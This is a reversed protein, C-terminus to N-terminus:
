DLLNTGNMNEMEIRYYGSKNKLAARNMGQKQRDLRKDKDNWQTTAITGQVSIGKIARYHRSMRTVYALGALMFSEDKNKLWKIRGEYKYARWLAAVADDIQAVTVGIISINRAVSAYTHKTGAQAQVRMENIEDRKKRQKAENYEETQPEILTTKDKSHSRKFAVTTSAAAAGLVSTLTIIEKVTQASSFAAKAIVTTKQIASLDSELIYRLSQENLTFLGSPDIGNVPDANAYIYKHLSVPNNISGEWTDRRTFRGSSPDYYRQRLYYQGLTGDFQEGAFLYDNETDGVESIGEGYADYTYTDTVNGNEDTLGRTSGLGDVSYYSENGDREQEILDLGYTYSADLNGDEYEALVQAYPRNKDLVYSKTTGGVTESVRINDDDYKYTVTGADTQAQVMRNQDDWIYTATVVDNETRRTLNGNKDYKYEITDGGAIEVKLLDNDDYTYTNTITGNVTKSLRNGVDDYTYTTTNGGVVDESILRYLDDYEYRVTREVLTGDPQRVSEIVELRHGADNTAYDFRSLLTGDKVTELVDLRNLEDYTRREVTGNPFQTEKLNGALDYLYTTTENDEKVTELRNQEDYTYDVVGAATRVQAINGADDYSYEISNDNVYPGTPDRRAILRGQADYDFTTTGREDTISAVQGDPTYAYQIDVDDPLDKAELRNQEDYVFQITEDNFDTVTAVNGVEDYTTVSREGTPLEVVTRRGLLDYEYSTLNNNADEQWILRGAEDYGYETELRRGDLTQIVKKLRGLDDYEYETTQGEPDTSAIRRGLKDYQTSISTGDAFITSELRGLEDYRYETTQGNADTSHTRRGAPDYRYTMSPNNDPDSDGDPAIVQLLQGLENYRYETRNGEEDVEALVRGDKSYVTRTRSLTDNNLVFDPTEVPYVVKTWDITGMTYTTPVYGDLTDMAGLLTDLPTEDGYITEILRGAVDYRYHTITGDADISARERGGKDYLTVSRPNDEPNATGDAHITAVLQGKEDYIYETARGLADVVKTQNGAADYTNVIRM